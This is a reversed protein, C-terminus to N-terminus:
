DEFPTHHDFNSEGNKWHGSISLNERPLRREFLLHRRVDRMASAEGGAWCFVEGEPWDASALAGVM